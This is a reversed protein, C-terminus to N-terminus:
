SGSSLWTKNFSHWLPGHEAPMTWVLPEYIRIWGDFKGPRETFATFTTINGEEEVSTIIIMTRFLTGYADKLALGGPEITLRCDIDVKIGDVTILKVRLEPCHYCLWRLEGSSDTAYKLEPGKQVPQECHFCTVVSM